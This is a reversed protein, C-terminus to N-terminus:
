LATIVHPMLICINYCMLEETEIIKWRNASSFNGCKRFNGTDFNATHCNECNRFNDSLIGAGHSADLHKSRKHYIDKKIIVEVLTFFAM